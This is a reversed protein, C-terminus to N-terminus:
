GSGFVKRADDKRFVWGLVIRSAALKRDVTAHDGASVVLMAIGLPSLFTRDADRFGLAEVIWSHEELVGLCGAEDWGDGLWEVVADLAVCPTNKIGGIEKKAVASFKVGGVVGQKVIM